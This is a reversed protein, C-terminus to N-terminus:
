NDASPSMEWHSLWRCACTYAGVHLGAHARARVCVCCTHQIFCAHVHSYVEAHIAWAVYAMVIYATVIHAMIVYAMVIYAIFIHAYVEAHIPCGSPCPLAAMVSM